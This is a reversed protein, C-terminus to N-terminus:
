IFKFDDDEPYLEKISEFAPVSIKLITLSHTRRSLAVTVRNQVEAMHQVTLVFRQLFAIWKAHM